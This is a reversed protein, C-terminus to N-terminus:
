CFVDMPLLVIEPNPIQFLIWVIPSLPSCYIFQLFIKLIKKFIQATTDNGANTLHCLYGLGLRNGAMSFYVFREGFM